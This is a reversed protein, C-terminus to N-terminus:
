DRSSWASVNIVEGCSSRPCTIRHYTDSGGDYDRFTSTHVDEGTYQLKYGCKSCVVEKTRVPGESVVKVVM